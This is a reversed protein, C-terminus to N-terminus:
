EEKDKILVFGASVSGTESTGDTSDFVIGANSTAQGESIGRLIYSPQLAGVWKQM